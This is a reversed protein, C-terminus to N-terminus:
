ETDTNQEEAPAAEPEDASAEAPKEASEETSEEVTEEVTEEATEEVKEEASDTAAETTAEAETVTANVEAGEPLPKKLAGSGIVFTLHTAELLTIVGAAIPKFIATVDAAEAGSMGVIGMFFSHLQENVDFVLLLVVATLAFVTSAVYNVRNTSVIRLVVLVAAVFTIALAIIAPVAASTFATQTVIGAQTVASRQCKARILRVFFYVSCSAYATFVLASIVSVLELLKGMIKKM